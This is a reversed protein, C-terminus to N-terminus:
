KMLAGLLNKRSVASATLVGNLLTVGHFLVDQGSLYLGKIGSGPVIDMHPVNDVKLGYIGGQERLLHKQLSVPTTLHQYVIHKSIGPFWTEVQDLLAASIREKAAQYDEGGLPLYKAFYDGRTVTSIEACHHNSDGHGTDLLSPFCLNTDMPRWGELTPDDALDWAGDDCTRYVKREIGFSSLDGEFGIDLALLSPSSEIGRVANVLRQPQRDAPILQNLTAPLGIASIVKDSQYSQGDATKVGSVRNGHFCLDTVRTRPLLQGGAAEITAQLAEVISRSSGIPHYVGKFMMVNVIGYYIFAHSLDGVVSWLCKFIRKLREDDFLSDLVELCPTSMYQRLKRSTLPAVLKAAWHPFLKPIVLRETYREIEALYSWYTELGAKEAPFMELLRQKMLASDSVWHFDLGLDPLRVRQFDAPLRAFSVRGDTLRSLAKFDPSEEGWNLIYTLGMSWSWHGHKIPQISGGLNPHQELVLVRRGLWSLSAACSMGGIGSGIVIADYKEAQM